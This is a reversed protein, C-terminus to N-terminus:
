AAGDGCTVRSDLSGDGRITIALDTTTDASCRVVGVGRLDGPGTGSRVFYVVSADASVNELTTGLGGNPGVQFEQAVGSGGIAVVDTANRLARRPLADLSPVDFTRTSGNEYTVAIGEVGTPVTRVAVTYSRDHDNRITISVDQGAPTDTADGPLSSCGATAVLLVVLALRTRVM